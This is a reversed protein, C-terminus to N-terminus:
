PYGVRGAYRSGLVDKMLNEAQFSTSAVICDQGWSWRAIIEGAEDRIVKGKFMGRLFGGTQVRPTHDDKPEEDLIVLIRYVVGNITDHQHPGREPEAALMYGKWDAMKVIAM